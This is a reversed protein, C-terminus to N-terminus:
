GNQFAYELWVIGSSYTRQGILSLKKRVAPGPLLPVGGGLLVPIVAPEVTDVCGLALLSRFLEGGGYLWIDKGPRSRLEDLKDEIGDAVVTVEPHDEQRLTRSIVVVEKDPFAQGAAVAVM